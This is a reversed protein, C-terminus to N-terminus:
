ISPPAKYARQFQEVSAGRVDIDETSGIGSWGALMLHPIDDPSFGMLTSCLSDVAVPDRGVALLGHQVPTGFLPGDGEMGVIGDVVSVVPPISQYLGLISLPIGNIHLINKPWGYRAGPLIGFLNKLSLSVGAWHHTKLKPVSVILDAERVHRPMWLEDTVHFWGDRAPIPRPDDYNLDIFEQGRAALVSALGTNRVIPWAERRFAPGDAVVVRAAGLELLHDVVAAIVVPHTTAARNELADVLNPKVLIRKNRVDPMDALQWLDRLHDLVVLDYGSSEGIAVVSPPQTANRVQGRMEWRVYDAVGLPHYLNRVLVTGAGVSGLLLLRLLSRRSIRKQRTATIWDSM